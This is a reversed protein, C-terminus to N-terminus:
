FKLFPIFIIKKRIKTHSLLFHLELMKLQSCPMSSESINGVKGIDHTEVNFATVIKPASYTQCNRLNKYM